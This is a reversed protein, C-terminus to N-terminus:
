NLQGVKAEILTQTLGGGFIKDRVIGRPTIFYTVPLNLVEYEQAINAFQDLLIPFDIQHDQIYQKVKNKPEAFNIGIIKINKDKLAQHSKQLEPMEKICPVCWTAWFNLIIVQGNFDSLKINQGEVTALEFYPAPGGVLPPRAAMGLLFFSLVVLTLRSFKVRAKFDM